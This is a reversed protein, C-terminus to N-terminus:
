ALWLRHGAVFCSLLCEDDGAVFLFASGGDGFVREAVWASVWSALDCALFWLPGVVGDCHDRLERRSCPTYTAVPVFCGPNGSSSALGPVALEAM